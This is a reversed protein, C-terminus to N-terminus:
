AAVEAFRVIDDQRAGPHTELWRELSFRMFAGGREIAAPTPRACAAILGEYRRALDPGVGPSPSTVVSEGLSLGAPGRKPDVRIEALGEALRSELASNAFLTTGWAWPMFGGRPSGGTVQDHLGAMREAFRLSLAYDAETDGPFGLMFGVFPTIGVEFCGRLLREAGELYRPIAKPNHLKDMRVLTDPSASEIGFYIVEVGAEALAPLLEPELVDVRSAITYTFPAAAMLPILERTRRRGVGFIPDYIMVRRTTMTEALRALQAELWAPGYPAYRRMKQEMCFNCPYPCGRSTVIAAMQYADPHRMLGFDLVPLEGASSARPPNVVPGDAGRWVLGPIAAPDWGGARTARSLALAGHEGDARVVGALAPCRELLLRWTNSPFYGGMVIPLGPAAEFIAEALRIGTWSTAMQSIGVWGVAEGQAAIRQAVQRAVEREAAETLALGADIKVDVLEVPVGERHLYSAVALAGM